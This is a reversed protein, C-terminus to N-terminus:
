DDEKFLESRLEMLLRLQVESMQPHEIAKLIAEELERRDNWGNLYDDDTMLTAIGASATWGASTSTPSATMV